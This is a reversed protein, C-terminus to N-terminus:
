GGQSIPQQFTGVRVAEGVRPGVISSTQIGRKQSTTQHENLCPRMKTYFDNQTKIRLRVILLILWSVQM